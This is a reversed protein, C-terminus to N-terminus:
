IGADDLVREAHVREALRNRRPEPAVQATRDADTVATLRDFFRQLAEESTYRTGGLMRTELRVGKCGRGAWRYFTSLALRRGIILEARKAAHTLPFTTEHRADIAM